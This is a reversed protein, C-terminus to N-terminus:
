DDHFQHPVYVSNAVLIALQQLVIGHEFIILFSLICDVFFFVRHVYCCECLEFSTNLFLHHLVVQFIDQGVSYNPIVILHGCM